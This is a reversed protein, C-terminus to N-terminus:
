DQVTYEYAAWNWTPEQNKSPIFTFKDKPKHYGTVNAEIVKGETFAQMVTIKEQTTNM